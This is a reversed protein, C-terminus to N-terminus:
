ADNERLWQVMKNFLIEPKVGDFESSDFINKQVFEVNTKISETEFFCVRHPSFTQMARFYRRQPEIMQLHKEFGRRQRSADADKRKKLETESASFIFYRDPFSLTKNQIKPQYFREIFDLSQLGIFNYVWSYWLPQFPDGDLIVLRYFSSQEQAIQWRQVQRKFYWEPPANEPREFLLNVEPVVFAGGTTKFCDATTTKGVASAGEFCIIPM